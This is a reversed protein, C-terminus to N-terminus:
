AMKARLSAVEEYIKKQERAIADWDFQSEVTERAKFLLERTM